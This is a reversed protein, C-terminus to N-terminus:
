PCVFTMDTMTCRTAKSDLAFYEKVGSGHFIIKFAAEVYGDLPLSMETVHVSLIYIRGWALLQFLDTDKWPAVILM